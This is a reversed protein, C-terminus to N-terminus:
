RNKRKSIKALKRARRRTGIVNRQQRKSQM